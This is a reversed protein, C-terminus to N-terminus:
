KKHIFDLSSIAYYNDVLVKELKNISYYKKKNEIDNYYTARKVILQSQELKPNNLFFFKPGEEKM